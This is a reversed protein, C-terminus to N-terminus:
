RRRTPSSQWNRRWGKRNRSDRSMVTSPAFDTHGGESDHAQYRDAEPDWTAFGEGLGTGPAIVAFPGNPEPAGINLTYLDKAELLPIGNAIAELDNLLKVEELDLAKALEREDLTWPLNTIKARGEVVPGAVGFCGDTIEASLTTQSLFEHVLGEFTAYDGSAFKAEFLTQHPGTEASFIALHTKTGGLDGTILM